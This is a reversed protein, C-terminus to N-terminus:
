LKNKNTRDISPLILSSNSRRKYHSSSFPQYLVKNQQAFNYDNDVAVLCKSSQIESQIEQSEEAFFQNESNYLLQSTNKNRATKNFVTSYTLKDPAPSQANLPNQQRTVNNCKDTIGTIKTFFQKVSKGRPKPYSSTASTDAEHVFYTFPLGVRSSGIPTFSKKYTIQSAYHQRTQSISANLIEETSFQKLSPM